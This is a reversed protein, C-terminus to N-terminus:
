SKLSEFWPLVRNEMYDDISVGSGVVIEDHRYIIREFYHSDNLLVGFHVYELDTVYLYYLAQARYATPIKMIWESYDSGTKAEFIAHPANDGFSILGDVNIRSWPMNRNSYQSKTNLVNFKPNEKAFIDRIYDEWVTGRYLAGSSMNKVISSQKMLDNDTLMSSKSKEVRKLKYLYFSTNEKDFDYEALAGIDSGGITNIRSKLWSFSNSDSTAMLSSKGIKDVDVNTYSKDSYDSLIYAEVLWATYNRYKSLEKRFVTIPINLVENKNDKCYNNSLSSLERTVNMREDILKKIHAVAQPSKSAYEIIEKRNEFLENNKFFHKIAKERDLSTISKM